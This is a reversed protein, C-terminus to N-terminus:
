PRVAALFAAARERLAAPDGGRVADGLLPSGVGVATAGRDLYRRAGDADVGGVPVFPTGPFPDRLAGLYGPGGLSAPFLKVATAGGDTAQVVETPTLAGALVPLGLRRGEALSAALAPTVLFGAGADAAAHADEASLVTGAGLAFGPGLSARARRITDLADASTLSIEVLAVGSEALTLVATLAAAPDPGRVIALLRHTRLEDLLNLM